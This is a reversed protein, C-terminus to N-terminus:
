SAPTRRDDIATAFGEITNQLLAIREATAAIRIGTRNMPGRTERVQNARLTIDKTKGNLDIAM